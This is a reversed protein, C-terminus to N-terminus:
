SVTGNVTVDPLPALSGSAALDVDVVGGNLTLSDLRYLGAVNTSTLLSAVDFYRVVTDSTWNGDQGTARWTAKDLAAAVVAEAEAEVTAPDYGVAATATFVVALPIYDADAIHVITNVLRLEDDALYDELDDKAGSALPDGDDDTAFVTVHGPQDELENVADYGAIARARGVGAMQVAFTAFDDAVIAADSSLRLRDTLRALYEAATEADVGGSSTATSVVSAVGSLQDIPQLTAATLGNADTGAVVAQVEVGAATSSGPNVTFADIVEFAVATDGTIPYAIRTGSPITYGATDVMTWTTTMTAPEADVAALGFIKQGYDRLAAEAVDAQVIRTEAIRAAIAEVAAVLPHGENLAAGTATRLDTLVQAVIAAPDVTVPYDVYGM